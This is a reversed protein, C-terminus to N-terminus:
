KAGQGGAKGGAKGGVGEEGEGECEGKMRGQGGADAKHLCARVRGGQAQATFKEQTTQVM